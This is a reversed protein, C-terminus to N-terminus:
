AKLAALLQDLTTRTSADAIGDVREPRFHRQFATIVKETMPDYTGSAEFAYGYDRLKRQMAEVDRGTDGPSLGSTAPTLPVPKVWRGIGAAHLTGWPFREGPDEKRLPAVDSHALVREPKIAHRELIDSCLAVVADIQRAPFDRYGHDHGPNVIEIGISHSNIDRQRGWAAAGAHWARRMEPVMQVIEGDEHILYHASVEAAPDCLRQLAAEANRMGTYHLLLMDPPIGDRRAGHNPSPTVTVKMRADSPFSM